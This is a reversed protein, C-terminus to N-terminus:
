FLFLLMISVYCTDCNKFFICSVKRAPNVTVSNLHNVARRLTRKVDDSVPSLLSDGPEEIFVVNIKSM